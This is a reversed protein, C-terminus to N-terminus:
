VLVCVFMVVAFVDFSDWKMVLVLADMVVSACVDLDCMRNCLVECGISILKPLEAIINCKLM